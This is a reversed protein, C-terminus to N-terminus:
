HDVPDILGAEILANGALSDLEPYEYGPANSAAYKRITRPAYGEFAMCLVRIAKQEDDDEWREGYVNVIVEVVAEVNEVGFESEINFLEFAPDKATEFPEDDRPDYSM